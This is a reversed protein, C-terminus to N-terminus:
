TESRRRRFNQYIFYGITTILTLVSIIVGIYFWRQPAFEMSLTMDFSGDSNKTCSAPCLKSPYILWGNTSNNVKIHDREEVTMGGGFLWWSKSSKNIQRMIWQPSYSEKTQLYFASRAGKINIITRTPNLIRYTVKKPQQLEKDPESVLYYNNQINPIAALQFNDYRVIGTRIGSSDPYAYVLIQLNHAGSPAAISKTVTNWDGSTDDLRKFFATNDPDDFSIYYAGFRGQLSKYDFSVLYNQGPQVPIDDPGTCAIHNDAELQLALAGNTKDEKTMRMGIKGGGEYDYCDGVQKRWAGQELSANPFINKYDYKPDTYSVKLTNEHPINFIHSAKTSALPQYDALPQPTLQLHHDALKFHLNDSTRLLLAQTASHEPALLSTVISGKKIDGFTISEYPNQLGVTPTTAHTSTDIFDFDLQLIKAVVDNKNGVQQPKDLAIVKQNTYVYPKTSNNAYLQFADSAFNNRLSFDYGRLTTASTNQCGLIYDYSGLNVTDADSSSIQKVQVNKSILIQTLETIVKPNNVAFSFCRDDNIQLLNNHDLNEQQLAGFNTISRPTLLKGYIDLGIFGNMLILCGVLGAYFINRHPRIPIYVLVIALMTAITFPVYLQWKLPSRFIWGGPLGIVLSILEKVHLFNVAALLILVLFAALSWTFRKKDSASLKKEVRVYLGLLIAYFGFVGVFYLLRYSDNYFEYDKFVDKSFSLGTLIDGTNAVGILTTYDTPTSTLSSSLVDKSITGISALPLIFYANLFLAILTLLMLRPFSQFIFAKDHYARYLLYGGSVFFNVAFTYPHILSINLFAVWFLFYRLQKTEFAKQIVVLCLPLMAVALVLGIKSVNGLFIPNLTFFVSAIIGIKPSTIKLFLKTYIYFALVIIVISSLLYFLSGAINGFLAFILLNILRGPMRIIGDLNVSGTQYSWFYVQKVWYFYVDFPFYYDGNSIFRLANM